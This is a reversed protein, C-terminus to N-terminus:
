SHIYWMKPFLIKRAVAIGKIYGFQTVMPVMTIDRWNSETLIHATTMDGFCITYYCHTLITDYWRIRSYGLNGHYILDQKFVSRFYQCVMSMSLPNDFSRLIDGPDKNM